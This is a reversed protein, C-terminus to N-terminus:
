RLKSGCEPCFMFLKHYKYNPRNDSETGLYTRGNTGDTYTGKIHNCQSEMFVEKLRHDTLLARMDKLYQATKDTNAAIEAIFSEITRESM